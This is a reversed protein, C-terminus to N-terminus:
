KTAYAQNKANNDNICMKTVIIVSNSITCLKNETFHLKNETFDLQMM